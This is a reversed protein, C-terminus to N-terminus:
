CNEEGSTDEQSDDTTPVSTDEATYAEIKQVLNRVLQPCDSLLHSGKCGECTNPKTAGDKCDAAYHGLKGCKYCGDRRSKPSPSRPRYNDSRKGSLESVTQKLEKFESILQELQSNSSGNKSVEKQSSQKSHQNHKDVDTQNANYFPRKTFDRGASLSKVLGEALQDLPSTGKDPVSLDSACQKFMTLAINLPIGDPYSQGALCRVMSATRKDKAGQLFAEGAVVETTELDHYGAQHAWGSVQAAFANISLEGQSANTLYTKYQRSTEVDDFITAMHRSLTSVSRKLEPNLKTIYDGATGTILTILYNMKSSDPIQQQNFVAEFRQFFPTWQGEGKFTPWRPRPMTVKVNAGDDTSNNAASTPVVNGPRVDVSPQHSIQPMIQSGNLDSGMQNMHPTNSYSEVGPHHNGPLSGPSPNSGFMSHYDPNHHAFGPHNLEVNAASSPRLFHPDHSGSHNVYHDYMNGPRSIHPYSTGEYAPNDPLTGQESNPYGAYMPRTGQPSYGSGANQDTSHRPRVQPPVRPRFDPNSYMYRTHQPPYRFRNTAPYGGRTHYHSFRPKAYGIYGSYGTDYSPRSRPQRFSYRPRFNPSMYDYNYGMHYASYGTQDFEYGSGYPMGSHFESHAFLPDTPVPGPNEYQDNDYDSAADESGPPSGSQSRSEPESTLPPSMPQGGSVSGSSQPYMRPLPRDPQDRRPTSARRGQDGSYGGQPRDGYSIPSPTHWSMSNSAMGTSNAPSNLVTSSVIISNQTSDSLRMRRLQEELTSPPINHLPGKRMATLIDLSNVNKLKYSSTVTSASIVSTRTGPSTDSVTVSNVTSILSYRGEIIEGRFPSEDRNRTVVPIHATGTNVSSSIVVPSSSAATSYIPLFPNTNNFASNSTTPNCKRVSYEFNGYEDVQPYPPRYLRPDPTDFEEYRPYTYVQSAAENFSVNRRPGGRAGQVLISSPGRNPFSSEPIPLSYEASYLSEPFNGISYTLDRLYDGGSPLPNRYQEYEPTGLVSDHLVPETITEGLLCNSNVEFPSPQGSYSDSDTYFPNSRRSTNPPIGRGLLYNDQLEPASSRPYSPTNRQFDILDFEQARRRKKAPSTRRRPIPPATLVPPPMPMGPIPSTILEEQPSPPQSARTGPLVRVSEDFWMDDEHGIIVM